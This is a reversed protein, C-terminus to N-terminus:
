DNNLVLPLYIYWGSSGSLAVNVTPKDGDDSAISLNAESLL